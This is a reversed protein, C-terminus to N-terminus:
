WLFSPLGREFTKTKDKIHQPVHVRKLKPCSRFIGAGLVKVTDPIYVAELDLCGIFAAQGIEKLTNPLIIRQIGACNQLAYPAIHTVGEPVRVVVDDSYSHVNCNILTTSNSITLTYQDGTAKSGFM